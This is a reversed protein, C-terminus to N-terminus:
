VFTRALVIALAILLAVKVVELAVYAYHVKSRPADEGALIRNSRRTLPPRIVAVQVVLVTVTVLLLVWGATGPPLILCAVILVVALVVEVTNLARFVLRGIGLGLPVTIGPARFKLPAELFSIALVMGLWLMPVFLEVYRALTDM